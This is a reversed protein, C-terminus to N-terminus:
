QRFLCQNRERQFTRDGVRPHHQRQFRHCAYARQRRQRGEGGLEIMLAANEGLALTNVSAGSQTYGDIIAADTINPLASVLAITHVGSGPINFYIHDPGGPGNPTNNAALIAERLSIGDSGPHAYLAAVSSTDADSSIIDSNNTVWITNYGNDINTVSVDPANVGNYNPDTSTAPATIITYAINGDVLNDNVGTITVTQAVNWNAPTFTLSSASVTGEATNSSSLNVTVNASPATTLVVNFTAQGGAETTTLGSTPTM